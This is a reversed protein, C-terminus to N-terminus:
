TVVGMTTVEVTTPSTLHAFGQHFEVHEKEFNSAYIGNLKRIYADRQSKFTAWDFKPADPLGKFKKPVCGVNVCTGGLYPTMEIVAVKKGYSAARRSCASGGSGGGILVMDYKDTTPKDFIPPM